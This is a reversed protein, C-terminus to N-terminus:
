SGGFPQASPLPAASSCRILLSPAALPPCPLFPFFFSFALSFFFCRAGFEESHGSGFGFKIGPLRAVRAQLYLQGNNKKTREKKQEKVESDIFTELAHCRKAHHCFSWSNALLSGSSGRTKLGNIKLNWTLRGPHLENPGFPKGRLRSLFRLWAHIMRCKKQWLLFARFSEMSDQNSFTCVTTDQLTCVDFCEIYLVDVSHICKEESVILVVFGSAEVM